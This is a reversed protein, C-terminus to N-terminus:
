FKFTYSVTPVIPLISIERFRRKRRIVDGNHDFEVKTDASAFYPNRHWYANYAGITWKREYKRKQKSFEISFDLRHYDTMRFDNKEGLTEIEGFFEAGVLGRYYDVPYRYIPLTIANGTGFVWAASLNIRDTLKHSAVISIDHRRDYRFPFRDGGNILDFQRNNWSLTYGIWGTTKGLKKQLFFELGYSDGDGQTIKSQWDNELGLLFTAGERFSLVNDMEKYYGEVSFEYGDKLTTAVGLAVQWSQQPKVRRTSPVWLDTPLSLSESTLLNIYQAMTSFSAKISTKPSLLYRLGFRPQISTYNEGDVNFLSTHLGLNAKIRGWRMDDEIYAVYERSSKKQSGVVTDVPNTEDDVRVALAGPRYSHHTASIGARVYHNPHPVYDLDWKASWDTIGSIYKALFIDEKDKSQKTRQEALINIDYNSHTMTLNSFLKNNIKYNWRLVGILNGWNIGTTSQNESESFVTNFVDSGSYGSLYVRHRDNIRYNIKANLDYFFLKPDVNLGEPQSKKIIPRFILDAYTRRGSILFSAKEKKIPGELTLKSSILGISGEGHFEQMNGEKMNIELVSSLRGGFRAPFGGKTLTVNKIADANFVSFVGLLHSVNYVPVGDLLVLNQDPSGGRVYLGSQGEGGSQVGPLLQLSKLVDVEGLLAPMKKIVEVPVDVQSMQTEEQIRTTAKATVEVVELNLSSSLRIQESRDTNHNLALIVPEYGVYSFVLRVSDHPLTISFFGFQNSSTGLQSHEDFVSCGILAEGTEDDLIYGDITSSKQQRAPQAQRYLVVQSGVMKYKLPQGELMKDLVASIKEQEFRASVKATKPIINRNYALAIGAKERVQDLAEALPVSEFAITIKGDLMTSQSWLPQGLSLALM